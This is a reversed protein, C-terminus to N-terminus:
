YDILYCEAGFADLMRAYRPYLEEGEGVIGNMLDSSVLVIPRVCSKRFFASEAEHLLVDLMDADKKETIEIAVCIQRSAFIWDTLMRLACCFGFTSFLLILGCLVIM